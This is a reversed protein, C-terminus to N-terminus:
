RSFAEGSWFRGGVDGGCFLLMVVVYVWVDDFHLVVSSCRGLAAHGAAAGAVVTLRM